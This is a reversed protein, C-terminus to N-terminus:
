LYIFLYTLLLVLLSLLLYFSYFSCDHVIIAFLSSFCSSPVSRLHDTSSVIHMVANIGDAGIDYDAHCFDLVHAWRRDTLNREDALRLISPTTL